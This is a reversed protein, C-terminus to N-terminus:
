SNISLYNEEKARIAELLKEDVDDEVCCYIVCTMVVALYEVLYILASM